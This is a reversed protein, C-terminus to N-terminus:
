AAVLHAIRPQLKALLQALTDTLQHRAAVNRAIDLHLCDGTEHYQGVHYKIVNKEMTQRNTTPKTAVTTNIAEAGFVTFDILPIRTCNTARTADKRRIDIPFFHAFVSSLYAPQNLKEIDIHYTTTETQKGAKSSDNNDAAAVRYEKLAKAKISIELSYVPKGPDFGNEVHWDSVWAKPKSALEDTKNYMKVSVMNSDKNVYTTGVQKGTVEDKTSIVVIGTDNKAKMRQFQDPKSTYGHILKAPDKQQTYLVIDLQSHNNIELGFTGLFLPLLEAFEMTYFAENAVHVPRIKQNYGYKKTPDTLIFGLTKGHANINYRLHYAPDCSTVRELTFVGSQYNDQASQYSLDIINVTEVNTEGKKVKFRHLDVSLAYKKIVTLM